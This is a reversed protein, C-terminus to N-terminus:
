NYNHIKYIIRMAELKIKRLIRSGAAPDSKVRHAVSLLQASDGPLLPHLKGEMFLWPGWKDGGVVWGTVINVLRILYALCHRQIGQDSM